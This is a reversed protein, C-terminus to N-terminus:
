IAGEHRLLWEKRVVGGAYGSLNGNAGIVRHCPVIISLPNRGNASGVARVAKPNSLSFAIDGYSRTAGYEILNLQAWVKEQFETGSAATPVDFVKRDGGFYEQLQNVALSTIQNSSIKQVHEVFYVSLLADSSARVELQGIPTDLIQNYIMM